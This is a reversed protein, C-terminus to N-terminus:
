THYLFFLVVVLLCCFIYVVFCLFLANRYTYPSIVLLLMFIWLLVTYAPLVIPLDTCQFLSLCLRSLSRFRLFAFSKAHWCFYLIIAHHREIHRLYYWRNHTNEICILRTLPQHVDTTPRIAKSLDQLNLAPSICFLCFMSPLMCMGLSFPSPWCLLSRLLAPPTSSLLYYLRLYISHYVSLSLFKANTKMVELKITGDPQNQLVRSHIGQSVFAVSFCIFVSVFWSSILLLMGQFLTPSWLACLLMAGAFLYFSSTSVTM